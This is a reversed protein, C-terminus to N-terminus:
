SLEEPLEVLALLRKKLDQADLTLNADDEQAVYDWCSAFEMRFANLSESRSPGYGMIGLSECEHIWLGDRFDVNITVRERLKYQHNGYIIKTWYLPLLQVSRADLIEEIKNVAGSDNLTARGEIEVLSGPILDRIVDEYEQPYYCRIDRNNVRLGIHREGTDVEILFLKGTLIRIEEETTATFDERAIREFRSRVQADLLTQGHSTEFLVTYDSEEEPLLTQVSKLVRARQGRDPYLERIKQRGDTQIAAVTNHLQQITKAGLHDFLEPTYEGVEAVVALSGTPSTSM